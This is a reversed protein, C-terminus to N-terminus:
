CCEWSVREALALAASTRWLRVFHEEVVETMKSEAVIVEPACFFAWSTYVLYRSALVGNRILWSVCEARSDLDPEGAVKESEGMMSSSQVLECERELHVVSEADM